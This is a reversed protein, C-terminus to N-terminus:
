CSHPPSFFCVEFFFFPPFFVDVVAGEDSGAGGGLFVGLIHNWSSQRINEWFEVDKVKANWYDDQSIGNGATWKLTCMFRTLM